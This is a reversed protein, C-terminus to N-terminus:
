KKVGRKIKKQLIEKLKDYRGTSVQINGYIPDLWMIRDEFSVSQLSTSSTYFRTLLDMPLKIAPVPPPTLTKCAKLSPTLPVTLWWGQNSKGDKGECEEKEECEGDEDSVIEGDEMSETSVNRQKRDKRKLSNSDGDDADVV